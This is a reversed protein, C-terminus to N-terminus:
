SRVACKGWYVAQFFQDSKAVASRSLISCCGIINGYLFWRICLTSYSIHWLATAGLSQEAQSSHCLSVPEVTSSPHTLLSVPSLTGSPQPVSSSSQRLAIACLFQHHQAQPSRCLSVATGSPQTLLSVPSVTGSPQPM